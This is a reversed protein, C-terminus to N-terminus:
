HPWVLFLLYLAPQNTPQLAPRRRKRSYLLPLFPLIQQSWKSKEKGSKKFPGQQHESRLQNSIDRSFASAPHQASHEIRSTLAETGRLMSHKLKELQSWNLWRSETFRAKRGGCPDWYTARAGGRRVNSRPSLFFQWFVKQLYKESTNLILRNLSTLKRM